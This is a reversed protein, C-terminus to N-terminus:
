ARRPAAPCGLLVDVRDLALDRRVLQLNTWTEGPATMGEGGRGEGQRARLEAPSRGRRETRDSRGRPRPDIERAIGGRACM